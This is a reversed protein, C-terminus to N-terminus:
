YSITGQIELKGEISNIRDALEKIYSCWLPNADSAKGAAIKLHGVGELPRAKSARPQVSLCYDLAQLEFL